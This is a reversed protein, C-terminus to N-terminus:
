RSWADLFPAVDVASPKSSASEAAAAIGSEGSATASAVTSFARAAQAQAGAASGAAAAAAAAAASASSPSTHLPVSPTALALPEGQLQPQRRVMDVVAFAKRRSLKRGAPIIEVVDGVNCVNHEDHCLYASQRKIIKRVRAALYAREVTVKVTKTMAASTVVGVLRKPM